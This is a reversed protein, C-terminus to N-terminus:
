PIGRVVVTATARGRIPPEQTPLRGEVIILDNEHRVVADIEL